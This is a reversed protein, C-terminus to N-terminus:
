YYKNQSLYNNVYDEIGTELTYFQKSYGANRLKRMNAETFYQYKDRIDTPTDIFEIEEKKALASFTSKALDLFARATGTGLNYLGSEPKSEMLFQIVSILDKVYVFDRLQGGDAYDPNHSRFLKMSGKSEIQYYAHMIVSAMRGKHYENPGYVNFFKLGYWNPPQEEQKFAWKDFENKSVGYPNLPVLKEIIESNDDYGFEGNGYTAASSAYIMPIEKEVCASWVSKTYELNLEELISYDFETTDTRAGIHIVADVNEAVELWDIFDDREIKDLHAIADLNKYKSQNSFDDVILVKHTGKRDLEAALCSGIFGAAGTVVIM